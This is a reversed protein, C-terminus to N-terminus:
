TFRSSIHTYTHANTHGIVQLTGDSRIKDTPESTVGEVGLRRSTSDQVESLHRRVPYGICWTLRAKAVGFIKEELMPLWTTNDSTTKVCYWYEVTHYVTPSTPDDNHHISCDFNSGDGEGVDGRDNGHGDKPVSSGGDLGSDSGPTELGEMYAECDEITLVEVDNSWSGTCPNRYKGDRPRDGKLGRVRLRHADTAAYTSTSLVFIASFLLVRRQAM